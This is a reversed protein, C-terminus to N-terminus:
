SGRIRHEGELVEVVRIRKTKTRNKQGAGM